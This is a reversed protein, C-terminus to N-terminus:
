NSEPNYDPDTKPESKRGKLRVKNAQSGIHFKQCTSCLYIELHFGKLNYGDRRMRELENRAQRWSYSFKGTKSCIEVEPFYCEV